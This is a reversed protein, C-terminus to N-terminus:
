HTQQKWSHAGPARDGSLQEEETLSSLSTPSAAPIRSQQRRGATKSFVFMPQDQPGVQQLM